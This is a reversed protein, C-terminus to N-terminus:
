WEEDFSPAEAEDWDGDENTGNYRRRVRAAFEAYAMGDRAYAQLLDAYKNFRERMEPLLPPLNTGIFRTLRADPENGLKLDSYGLLKKDKAKEALESDAEPLLQNYNQHIILGCKNLVFFTSPHIRRSILVPVCNMYLCKDLLDKIEKRDPYVWERINKCEIGAWDGGANVIFDLRRDDPISRRHNIYNPPEEKTYLTGDDHADLNTFRGFFPLETADLARFTAIELTQGLRNNFNKKSYAEQIPAMEAHRKQAVPLPTDTLYYWKGAVGPLNSLRGERRLDERADTLIHPDIRQGYPGADSIKMELTRM